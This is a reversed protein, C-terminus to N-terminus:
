GEGEKAALAARAKTSAQKIDGFIRCTSLTPEGGTWEEAREISEIKRKIESCSRLVERMREVKATLAAIQADKTKMQASHAQSCSRVWDLEKKLAATEKAVHATILAAAEDLSLVMDPWVVIDDRDKMERVRRAIEWDPVKAVIERVDDSAPPAPVLAFTTDRWREPQIISTVIVPCYPYPGDHHNGYRYGCNACIRDLTESMDDGGDEAGV